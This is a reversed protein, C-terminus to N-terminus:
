QNTSKYGKLLERTLKANNKNDISEFATYAFRMILLSLLSGSFFIAIIPFSATVYLIIFTSFGIYLVHLPYSAGIIFAYKVCEIMKIDFHVFVPLIFFAVVLYLIAISFSLFLLIYGIQGGLDRFFLLDLYLLFGAFAIIVGLANAKLFNEKYTFWFTKFIPIDTSGMIWHRVVTLMAVTAPFFGGVVFGLLTLLIWLINVYVLKMIWDSIKYVASNM